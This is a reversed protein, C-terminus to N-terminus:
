WTSNKWCCCIGKSECWDRVAAPSVESDEGVLGLGEINLWKAFDDIVIPDYMLIKEHWTLCAQSITSSSLQAIRSQTRIAQTIKSFLDPSSSGPDSSSPKAEVARLEKAASNSYKGPSTFAETTQMDLTSKGISGNASCITTYRQQVRSPSPIVEEESDQIEDVDIYSSSSAIHAGKSTQQVSPEALPKEAPRESVTSRPKPPRSKSKSKAAPRSKRATTQTTVLLSEPAPQDSLPKNVIRNKSQWCKQLLEIMKKRGRVSKFGFSAVQKSLEADTFGNYLPMSSQRHDLQQGGTVDVMVDEAPRAPLASTPLESKGPLRSNAPSLEKNRSSNSRGYDLDFWDDDEFGLPTNATSGDKQKSHQLSGVLNLSDGVTAQVLSGEMDRAAVHWLHKAGTLNSPARTSKFESSDPKLALRESARIAQQIDKMTGPSDERELQSCSGFVLDQEDLTKAAAEPSVVTFIPEEKSSKSKHRRHPAIDSEVTDRVLADDQTAVSTYQATM